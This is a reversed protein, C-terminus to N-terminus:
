LSKRSLSEVVEMVFVAGWSLRRAVVASGVSQLLLPWWLSFGQCRLWSDAGNTVVLSLQCAAVLAWHPWVYVSLPSDRLGRGREM